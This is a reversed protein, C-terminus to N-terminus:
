LGFAQRDKTQRNLYGDCFSEAIKGEANQNEIKSKLRV